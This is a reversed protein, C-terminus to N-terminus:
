GRHDGRCSRNEGRWGYHNAAPKGELLQRRWKGRVSAGGCHCFCLVPQLRVAVPQVYPGSSNRRSKLKTCFHERPPTYKRKRFWGTWLGLRLRFGLVSIEALVNTCLQVGLDRGVSVSVAGGNHSSGVLAESTTQNHYVFHLPQYLLCRLSIITHLNHQDSPSWEHQVSLRTCHSLIVSCRRRAASTRFRYTPPAQSPRNDRGSKRATSNAALHHRQRWQKLITGLTPAVEGWRVFCRV